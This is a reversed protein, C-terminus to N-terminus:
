QEIPTIPKCYRTSFHISACFVFYGVHLNFRFNPMFLNSIILKRLNLLGFFYSIHHIRLLQKKLFSCIASFFSIFCSLMWYPAYWGSTSWLPPNRWPVERWPVGECLGEEHFGREHVGEMAGGNVSCGECCAKWPVVKVSSGKHCGGQPCVFMESFMANGCSRKRATIFGFVSKASTNGDYGPKEDMEKTGSVYRPTLSGNM